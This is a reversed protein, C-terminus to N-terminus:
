FLWKQYKQFAIDQVHLKRLLFGYLVYIFYYKYCYNINKEKINTKEFFLQNIDQRNPKQQNQNLLLPLNLM